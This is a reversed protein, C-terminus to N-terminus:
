DEYTRIHVQLFCCSTMNCHVGGGNALFRVHTGIREIRTIDRIEQVQSVTVQFLLLSSIFVVLTRILSIVPPVTPAAM